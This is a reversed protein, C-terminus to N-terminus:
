RYFVHDGIQAVVRRSSAWDPRMEAHHFFLAGRTPDKSANDYIKEAIVVIKQWTAQEIQKRRLSKDCTWSFQCGRANREYVVGCVDSKWEPHNVRNMTVWGVAQMGRLSQNRAEFYINYALCAISRSRLQEQALDQAMTTTTQPLLALWFAMALAIFKRM